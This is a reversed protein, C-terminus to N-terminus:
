NPDNHLGCVPPLGVSKHTVIGLVVNVVAIVGVGISNATDVDVPVQYGFASVVSNAALLFGGVATAAVQGKIWADSNDLAEGKRFLALLALIKTM